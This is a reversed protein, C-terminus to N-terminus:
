KESHVRFIQMIEKNVTRQEKFGDTILTFLEKDKSENNQISSTNKSISILKDTHTNYAWTIYSVVVALVTTMVAIVTKQYREEWLMHNKVIESNTTLEKASAEVIIVIRDLRKHLAKLSADRAVNEKDIINFKEVLTPYLDYNKCEKVIENM